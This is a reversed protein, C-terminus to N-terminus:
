SAQGLLCPPMDSWTDPVKSWPVVLRAERPGPQPTSQPHAGPNWDQSAPYAGQGFASRQDKFSMMPPSTLFNPAINTSSSTPMSASSM